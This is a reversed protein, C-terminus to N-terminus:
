QGVLRAPRQLLLVRLRHQRGLGGYLDIDALGVIEDGIVSLAPNYYLNFVEQILGDTPNTATNVFGTNLTDTYQAAGPRLPPLMDIWYKATRGLMAATVSGIQATTPFGQYYNTPAGGNNALAFSRALNSLASAAKYYDIGTNPDVIDLPQTLDRQTLLNRGFRGVYAVQLSFRRPLERGVSFDVTYAHPSKLTNDTVWM